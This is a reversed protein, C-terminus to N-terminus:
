EQGELREELAGFGLVGLIGFDGLHHNVIKGGKVLLSVIPGHLISTGVRVRGKLGDLRSGAHGLGRLGDILFPIGGKSRM